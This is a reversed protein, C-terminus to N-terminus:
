AKEKLKNPLLEVRVSLVLEPLPIYCRFVGLLIKNCIKQSLTPFKVFNNSM